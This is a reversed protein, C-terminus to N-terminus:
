VLSELHKELPLHRNFDLIEDAIFNLRSDHTAILCVADKPLLEKLTECIVKTNLDDLGSTPGDLLLISPTKALARAIAGRQMQGGSLETPKKNELGDLGLRKIYASTEKNTSHLASLAINRRLSALPLLNMQQFVFGVEKALFMSSGVKYRSTTKIVGKKPKLYGAILRLLTSKGCGSFGKILTIGSNAHFSFGDFVPTVKRPYSYRLQDIQIEM